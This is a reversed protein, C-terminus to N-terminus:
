KKGIGSLVRTKLLKCRDVLQNILFDPRKRHFSTIILSETQHSLSQKYQSSGGMFDYVKMGRKAYHKIALSHVLLGPKVRNDPSYQIGSLYFYVYNKYIFNYLYCIPTEGVKMTLLDVTGQSFANTILARHFQTFDQNNFGSQTSPWRQKHLEGAADFTDLAEEISSAAILTVPGNKELIKQTRKIQHRTNKSLTSLYEDSKAYKDFLPLSYSNSEWIIRQMLANPIPTNKISSKSVGLVFEDIHPFHRELYSLMFSRVSEERGRLCLVDNFESWIQDKQPDGTRNLWIQHTKIGHKRTTHTCYFVLGVTGNSDTVRLLASNVGLTNVWTEIYSWSLFFSADAKAELESWVQKLEKFDIESTPIETIALLNM